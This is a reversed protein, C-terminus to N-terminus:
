SAPLRHWSWGGLHARRVQPIRARVWRAGGCATSSRQHDATPRSRHWQSSAVASPQWAAAVLVPRAAAHGERSSRGPPARLGLLDGGRLPPAEVLGLRWSTPSPVRGLRTRRGPPVRTRGRVPPLRMPEEAGMTVARPRQLERGAQEAHVWRTGAPEPGTQDRVGGASRDQAVPEPYALPFHCALWNTNIARRVTWSPELYHTNRQLAGSARAPRCRRSPSQVKVIRRGPAISYTRLPPRSIYTSRSMTRPAPTASRTTATAAAM